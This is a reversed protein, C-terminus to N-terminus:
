FFLIVKFKIYIYFLIFYFFKLAINPIPTFPLSVLLLAFGPLLHLQLKSNWVFPGSMDEWSLSSLQNKKKKFFFFGLEGFTLVGGLADNEKGM